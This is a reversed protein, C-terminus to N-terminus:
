KPKSRRWSDRRDVASPNAFDFRLWDDDVKSGQQQAHKGLHKQLAYHLIHTASHARRIGQRRDADVRATVTTGQKLSAQRLHGVHLMFGGEKQTDTVEFRLGPGVIEGTDGVQGGSKAM